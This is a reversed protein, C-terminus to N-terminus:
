NYICNNMLIQIPQMKAAILKICNVCNQHVVLLDVFKNKVRNNLM